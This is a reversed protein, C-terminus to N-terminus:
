RRSARGAPGSTRQAPSRAETVAVQLSADGSLREKLSAEILPGFRTETYEKAFPNPVRITLEEDELAIPVAGEFWVALSPDDLESAVDELVATWLEEAASDPKPPPPPKSAIGDAHGSDGDRAITDLVDAEELRRQPPEVPLPLRDKIYKRLWAGTDRIGKQYPLAEVYFSCADHGREAVLERAVNAWVGNRILSRVAANEEVTWHHRPHSRHAVFKESIDYAVVDKEPFSVSRLFGKRLLEEHAPKLARKIQSPYKYSSAMSLVERLESLKAKWRLDDGREVDVRGYLPRAYIEDLSFYFNVDLQRIYGAQYSRVMVEDFTLTHHEVARGYKDANAKFHVRWVTFHESEYSRTEKSYIDADILLKQQRLISERVMRYSQGKDPLNLIKVLDYLSFRLKGDTRMGGRMQALFTMAVYVDRDFDNLDGFEESPTFRERRTGLNGNPLKIPRTYERMRHTGKTAGGAFLYSEELNIEFSVMEPQRSGLESYGLMKETM